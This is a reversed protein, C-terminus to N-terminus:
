RSEKDSQGALVPGMQAVAEQVIAGDPWAAAFKCMYKLNRPSLGRMELYSRQEDALLDAYDSPLDM